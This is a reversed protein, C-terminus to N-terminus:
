EATPQQVVRGGVVTVRARGCLAHGAFPTHKGQSRLAEPTVQWELSPALVCLDAAGGESLRGAGTAAGLLAGPAATVAALARM